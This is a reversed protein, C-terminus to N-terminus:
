DTGPTAGRPPTHPDPFEGSGQEERPTFQALGFDLIKVRGDATVVVNEPKLDRHVISKEHAAALADAVQAGIALLRDIPLAGPGLLTRLSATKAAVTAATVGTTNCANILQVSGKLKLDTVAVDSAVKDTLQNVNAINAAQATVTPVLAAYAVTGNAPQLM